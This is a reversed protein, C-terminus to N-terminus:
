ENNAGTAQKNKLRRNLRKPAVESLFIYIAEQILKAESYEKNETFSSHTSTEVIKQRKASYAEYVSMLQDFNAKHFNLRVRHSTELSELIKFLKYAATHELDEIFM